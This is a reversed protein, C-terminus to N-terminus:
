TKNIVACYHTLRGDIKRVADNGCDLVRKRLHKMKSDTFYDAQAVVAGFEEPMNERLKRFHIKHEEQLDELLELFRKYIDKCDATVGDICNQDM